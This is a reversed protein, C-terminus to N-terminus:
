SDGGAKGAKDIASAVAELIGESSFTAGSVTDVSVSQAEIIRPIVGTAMDFFSDDESAHESVDISSILGNSVEVMVAVPGGFGMGEGFYSGDVLPGGAEKADQGDSEKIYAIENRASDLEAKLRAITDAQERERLVTEYVYLSALILLLSALRVAFSKGFM